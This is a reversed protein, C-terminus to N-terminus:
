KINIPDLGDDDWPVVTVTRHRHAEIVLVRRGIPLPEDSRALFRETGGRIRLEVEGPGASGRSAVTLVGVYGVM